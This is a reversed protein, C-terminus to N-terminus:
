PGVHVLPPPEKSTYWNRDRLFAELENRLMMEHGHEVDALYQLTRRGSLDTAQEAAERYFAGARGERDVALRLLDELSEAIEAPVPGGEATEPDGPIRPPTEDTGVMQRYLGMLINKHNAEEKALNQYKARVLDNDIMRSIHGYFKAADEESRIALGIVEVSTLRRDM